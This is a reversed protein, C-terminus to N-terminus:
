ASVGLPVWAGVREDLSIDTYCSTGSAGLGTPKHIRLRLGPVSADTEATVKAFIADSGASDREFVVSRRKKFWFIARGATAFWVDRRALERILNRYCADWLREPLISRDHWNTTMCGGLEATNEIMRDLLVSAELSSLGLYDPYFLATDMVNLPLELLFAAQLPKYAQTTGARYGVTETYGVTSDYGAEAHELALPSQEDYYLWHMRVGIESRGTLRRIEQLERRGSSSDLWADIGHLGVEGGAETIKTVVDAIEEACYGAARFQPAVGKSNRGPHGKFPIIFFTPCLGKELELYHAAFVGWFDEVLGLHVFPLKLAAAWNTLANRVPMRGRLLNVLSGVTARYLFGFSTHDWRHKRIMPHDVDHTLCAMFQFGDPVPPIEVLPIGNGVILDRLLAIHLDLTPIGANSVPQGVVLLTRVENFLDYGIRAVVAKGSRYRHVVQQQLEEDIVGGMGEARFVISDGYIPIRGGGYSLSGNNRRSSTSIKEDSDCPLKRGAYILILSAADKQCRGEGACLLVDYRQGERYFEWPTKFLEFLERAVSHESPDALVGIM